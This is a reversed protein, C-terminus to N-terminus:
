KARPAMAGFRAWHLADELQDDGWFLEGGTTFSPAGFVGAAQAAETNARLRPKLAPDAAREALESPDLGVATACDALLGPQSIDRGEGWHARSVARCFAPGEPRELAAVALRAAAVSNVPFVEAREFPLGYAEARRELDRFMFAGKAPYLNFPSTDWGQAGFIPGLLFPRWDVAVGATDAAAEIRQLTLYSYTSAFDFWFGIRPIEDTM